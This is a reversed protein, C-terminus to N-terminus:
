RALLAHLAITAWRPVPIQLWKGPPTGEVDHHTNASLREAPHVRDEDDKECQTREDAQATQHPRRHGHRVALAARARPAILLDRGATEELELRV